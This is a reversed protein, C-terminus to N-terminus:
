ASANAAALIYLTGSYNQAYQGRPLDIWYYMPVATGSSVNERILSYNYTLRTTDPGTYNNKLDNWTINGVGLTYTISGFGSVSEPELNTGKIWLGDVDNSNPHISINYGDVNNWIAPNGTTVPNCVGFDVKGWSIDMILVKTIEIITYDTKNSGAYTSNFLVDLKWHTSLNGTSNVEWSISCLEDKYLPNGACQKPNIGSLVYFPRDGATTNVPTDPPSTSQNYRLTGNLGGCYGDRCYVTANIIFTRNQGVKYGSNSEADGQGPISPPLTLNVELYGIRTINYISNDYSGVNDVTDNCLFYVPYKENGSTTINVVYYFTGTEGNTLKGGLSTNWTVRGNSWNGGTYNADGEYYWVDATTNIDWTSNLNEHYVIDTSDITWQTSADNRVDIEVRYVRPEKKYFYFTTNLGSGISTGGSHTNAQGTVDYIRIQTINPLPKGKGGGFSTFDTVNFWIHTSNGQMNYDGTDNIEWGYCKADSFNWQVCHVIDTINLGSKPIYLEALDYVLGTDNLAFLATVDVFMFPLEGVYDVVVQPEITLNGTVNFDQIRALLNNSGTPASIDIIYLQDLALEDTLKDYGATIIKSSIKQGLTDYISIESNKFSDGTSNILTINVTCSEYITFGCTVSWNQNLVKDRCTINWSHGGLSLSSATLVTLTNNRTSENTDKLQNDVYLSCNLEEALNDTAIFSFNVTTDATYSGSLPSQLQISPYDADVTVTTSGGDYATINYALTENDTINCSLVYDGTSLSGTNWVYKAHGSSNTDATGLPTGDRYFAVPYGQIGSGNTVDNVRCILDVATSQSYNGGSPSLWSLNSWGWVTFDMVDTKNWNGATDNVYIRWFVRTGPALTSNSWTFSSTDSEEQLDQPSGYSTKNIWLGSENTALLASDLMINDGWSASLTITENRHVVGTYESNRTQNLNSWYPPTRDRVVVVHNNIDEHPTGSGDNGSVNTQLVYKGTQNPPIFEISYDSYSNQLPGVSCTIKDGSKLCSGDLNGTSWGPPIAIDLSTGALSNVNCFERLRLTFSNKKGASATLNNPTQAELDFGESDNWATWACGANNVIDVDTRDQAQNGYETTTINATFSVTTAKGASNVEYWFVVQGYAPITWPAGSFNVTGASSETCYTASCGDPTCCQSFSSIEDASWIDRVETLTLPNPDTNYIIIGARCNTDRECPDSIVRYLIPAGTQLTSLTKQAKNNGSANYHFTANDTINCTITEYGTSNDTFTWSAWGDALTNNVGMLSTSNYFYVPYNQISAGTVNDAVKCKMTTSEGKNIVSPNLSSDSVESWGWVTFDMVETKNWNGTSDSAHIRWGVFTGLTISSNTWTFNSWNGTGSISLPSGYSTKNEWSGTENTALRATSLGLNDTWYAALKILDGRHYIDVYNGNITQNQKSWGPPTYDVTLSRTESVNSNLSDSCNIYWTHPNESIGTVDFLTPTGNVVSGNTQNLVSDIYLSCNLILAVSDVVTFNFVIDGSTTNFGNVPENLIIEPLTDDIIFEYLTHNQNGASDRAWVDVGTPGESWGTTSIDYPSNLTNNTLGSNNSWWASELNDDTVDLDITTGSNITSGNGPSILDIAPDTYDVTFTRTESKNSNLSDSCNIYWTHPNESIGTVDFLTPTGNVVSGNTQNLVSDIYLSCNLILAVSDVVTFNFVIDGSTTNFGNVPENLIIEPKTRDVTIGTHNDWDGLNGETDNARVRVEYQASDELGTLDWTCNYESDGDTDNCASKWESSPNRRYEFFVWGVATLDTITANVEYSNSTINDNNLPRDLTAAPGTNDIIVNIDTYNSAGDDDVVKVRLYCDGDSSCEPDNVTDWTCNWGDVSLTDNCALSMSTYGSDNDVWFEAYQIVGDSDSSSSANLVEVGHVYEGPSPYDWVAVPFDNITLTVTETSYATAANPSTAKCRIGWSNGGTNSGATIHFTHNCAAGGATLTGCSYNDMSNTLDSTSTTVDTWTGPKYQVWVSVNVCDLGGQDCSVNCTQTYTNDPPSEGIELDTSPETMNVTMNASSSVSWTKGPYTTNLNGLTDNARTKTWNYKGGQTSQYEKSYVDDGSVLDCNQGDDLLIITDNEAVEPVDIEAWVSDVGVLNDTVTVNLCILENIAISTDNVQENSLTPPTNDVTFMSDSDNQGKGGRSDEVLCRILYQDSDSDGTTDWELGYVSLGKTDNTGILSWTIGNNKSYNFTANQIADGPDPDNVAANIVVTGSVNEGGNPYSITCTPNQNQLDITLNLSTDSGVLGAKDTVNVSINYSGDPLNINWEYTLGDGPATDSGILEWKGSSTNWYYFSANKLGSTSDTSSSANLTYPSTQAVEDDAPQDLVATPPTTDHTINGHTNWGCINGETDNARARAEIGAQDNVSSLDWTYTYPSSCDVSLNHWGSDYYAQFEVCSVGSGGADDATANVTQSETTIYTDNAPLDLIVTPGTNDIIINIDTYNSAGDDDAVKVRLYCDGDSSCEPDNVTDWTCNWGDVSLTDNCVLSMSGYGADSDVWFEVYQISGDSDSSSTAYLMETGHVYEGPSPYDWVATPPDNVYLSTNAPLSTVNMANSSTANCAVVYDGTSLATITFTAAEEATTYVTGLNISDLNSRLGASTTNLKEGPNCTLSGSCYIAYVNVDGCASGTCNATCNLEFIEGESIGPDSLPYSLNIALIPTPTVNIEANKTHNPEILSYSSSFNVDINWKGAHTANITWNLTCTAGYNLTGCSQSGANAYFPQSGPTTSIQTDPEAGTSNYRATGTVTGCSAGTEGECTVTANLTFTENSYLNFTQEPAPENLTSNLYGAATYTVNYYLVDWYVITPRSASSFAESKIEARTGTSGFFNSCTWDGGDQTTVDSCTITAPESTGPCSLIAASWSADGDNDVSIDCTSPDSQDAWWQYCVEVKTVDVCDVITTNYYSLRIGAYTSKRTIHSETSADDCSVNDAPCPAPYSGSCLTDWSGQQASESEASCTQPRLGTSPWLSPDVALLWPRAETFTKNGYDIGAPGIEYLYPWILPTQASYSVMSNNTLYWTLIKADETLTISADGSDTVTFDSPLYERLTFATTNAYSAIEIKSEFPGKLPDITLPIERIIDFEYYDRVPFYSKISSAAGDATATVSLSYNGEEGTSSHEAKYIGKEIEEVTGNLTSYYSITGRPGTVKLQVDANSVPYGGRDLVVMLIEATENLRYISKRTNVSVLGWTFWIEEENNEYEVVLNYLGPQISKKGPIKIQYKDEVRNIEPEIGTPSGSSDKLCARIAETTSLALDEIGMGELEVEFEPEEDAGYSGRENRGKIRIEGPPAWDVTKNEAAGILPNTTSPIDPAAITTEESFMTTTATTEVAAYTTTSPGGCPVSILSSTTATTTTSTTVCNECIDSIDLIRLTESVHGKDSSLEISYLGKKSFGSLHIYALGSSSTKGRKKEVIVGNENLIEIRFETNRPGSIFIYIGENIYYSDQNTNIGFGNESALTLSTVLLLFFLVIVFVMDVSLSSGNGVRKM